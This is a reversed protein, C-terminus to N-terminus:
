GGSGWSAGTLADIYTVSSQVERTPCRLKSMGANGFPLPFKDTDICVPSVVVEYFAVGPAPGSYVQGPPPAPQVRLTVQITSDPTLVDWGKGLEGLETEVRSLVTAAAKDFGIFGSQDLAAASPDVVDPLRQPIQTSAGGTGHAACSVAGSAAIFAIVVLRQQRRRLRVIGDHQQRASYTLV